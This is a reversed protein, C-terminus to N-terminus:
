QQRAKKLNSEICRTDDDDETLIRGLYKFYRVGELEEGDIHFKVNEAKFQRDQKSENRRRSAGLQLASKRM